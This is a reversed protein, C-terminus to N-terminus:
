TGQVRRARPPACGSAREAPGSAHAFGDGTGGRAGGERARVSERREGCREYRALSTFLWQRGLKSAAVPDKVVYEANAALVKELESSAMRTVPAAASAAKDALATLRSRLASATSASM